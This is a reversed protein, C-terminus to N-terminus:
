LGFTQYPIPPPPDLPPVAVQSELSPVPSPCPSAPAPGPSGKPTSYPTYPTSFVANLSERERDRRLSSDTSNGESGGWEAGRDVGGFVLERSRASVLKPPREQSNTRQRETAFDLEEGVEVGAEILMALRNELVTFIEEATPRLRFDQQWMAELLERVDEPLQDPLAPRGGALVFSPVDKPKMGAHLEEQTFVEWLVMGLSYVDSGPSFYGQELVEPAMWDPTGTPGPTGKSVPERVSYAQVAEGFDGLKLCCGVEGEARRRGGGSRRREPPLEPAPTDHWDTCTRTAVLFNMSKIDRHLVPPVFSHLYRVAGAAQLALQTQLLSALRAQSRLYSYLAGFECLEFILYIYPPQVCYGVFGVVRHHTLQCGLAVEKCVDEVTQPTLEDCYFRKAACPDGKFTGAYVTAAGGHGIRPGIHLHAFHLPQAATQEAIISPMLHKSFSNNVSSFSLGAELSGVMADELSVPPGQGTGGWAGRTGVGDGQVPVTVPTAYGPGTGDASGHSSGTGFLSPHPTGLGAWYRSDLLLVYYLVVTFIAPPMGATERWHELHSLRSFGICVWWLTSFTVMIRLGIPNRASEWHPPLRLLAILPPLAQALFHGLLWMKLDVGFLPKQMAVSVVAGSVTLMTYAAGIGLCWVIARAGGSKGRLFIILALILGDYIVAFVVYVALREYDYPADYRFSFIPPYKDKGACQDHFGLCGNNFYLFMELGGALTCLALFYLYQPLIVFGAAWDDGKWARHRSFLIWIWLLVITIGTAYVSVQVPSFYIGATYGALLLSVLVPVVWRSLRWCCSPNGEYEGGECLMLACMGHSPRTRHEPGRGGVYGEPFRPAPLATSDRLAQAVESPLEEERGEGSDDPDDL